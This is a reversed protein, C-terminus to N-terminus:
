SYLIFIKRGTYQKSRRRTASNTGESSHNLRIFRKTKTDIEIYCRAYDATTIVSQTIKVHGVTCNVLLTSIIAASIAAAGHEM